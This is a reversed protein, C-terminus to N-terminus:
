RMAVGVPVLDTLAIKYEKAAGDWTVSYGKPYAGSERGRAPAPLAASFQPKSELYAKTIMPEGFIVKGDWSGYIFTRTFKEGRLEASTTDVWHIGMRPFALPAPMVYNNPVLEPQPLREAKKQFEPDKPDIADRESPDITYFHFDFHPADYIGPPEHGRPNWNIVVHRYPTPNDEPLDLPHEFTTHGHMHVGNPDHEDPLGALAAESLRVGIETPVGNAVTVYTRATGQGLATPKGYTTGDSPTGPKSQRCAGVAAAALAALAVLRWDTITTIRMM